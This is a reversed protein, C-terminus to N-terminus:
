AAVSLPASEQLRMWTDAESLLEEVANLVLVELTERSSADHPLAAIQDHLQGLRVAMGESLAAVRHSEGQALLGRLGAGLAPLTTALMRLFRAWADIGSLHEYFLFGTCVMTIGFFATSTLGIRHSLAHETAAKATHYRIQRTLLERVYTVYGAFFEPDELRMESAAKTTDLSHCLRTVEDDVIVRLGHRAALEEYWNTNTDRVFPAVLPLYRLHESTRRARIWRKQWDGRRMVLFLVLISVMLLFEIGSLVRKNFFEAAAAAGCLVALPAVLYMMWYGGKYDAGLTRAESSFHSRHGELLLAIDRIPAPVEDPVDPPVDHARHGLLLASRWLSHWWGLTARRRPPLNHTTRFSARNM